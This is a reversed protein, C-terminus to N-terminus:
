RQYAAVVKPEMEEFTDKVESCLQSRLQSMNDDVRRMAKEIQETVYKEMDVRSTALMAQRHIDLQKMIVDSFSECPSSDPSDSDEEGSFGDVHVMEEEQSMTVGSLYCFHFIRYNMDVASASNFFQADAIVGSVYTEYM